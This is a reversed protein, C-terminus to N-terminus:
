NGMTVLPLGAAKRKANLAALGTTTLATWKALVTALDTRAKTCAALQPATPPMESGQMANAAALM